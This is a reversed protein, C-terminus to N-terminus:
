IVQRYKQTILFVETFLYDSKSPIREFLFRKKKFTEPNKVVRVSSVRLIAVAHTQFSSSHLVAPM